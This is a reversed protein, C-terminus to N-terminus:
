LERADTRFERIAETEIVGPRERYKPSTHVLVLNKVGAKRAIIGTIRATLHHREVARELDEHLFYAECYFTDSGTVFEIVKSINEEGPSIDTIYSVKQGETIRAIHALDSLRFERGDVKLKTDLSVSGRIMMKLEGLWPGVSLGIKTLAAKDINIHFEEELSFGLCPTGHSLNVARVTFPAEKVLTGEFRQTDRDIRQFGEEAYFSAHRIEGGAVRFVEIKLPYEEIVNWTYGRLKGEICAIINEPGYVRLPIDRRLLIRLLTDFGIFHDIHTHTVFVDTIKMIDAPMLSRLDGADFLVARKERIMRIYLGPDEYQNNILRHHFSPKM